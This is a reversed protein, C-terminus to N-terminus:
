RWAGLILGMLPFVVLHYGANILYLKMPKREFLYTVGFAAAIWVGTLAGATAGWAPTADAGGLFFALNASAILMLVFSLGFIRGAGGASKLSDATYGNAAMWPKVFALPSYWLGGVLFACLAAVVVAPPNLHPSV